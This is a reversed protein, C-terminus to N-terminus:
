EYLLTKNSFIYFIISTVINIIYIIIMYKINLLNNTLVSYFIIALTLNLLNKLLYILINKSPKMKRNLLYLFIFLITNQYTQYILLDLTLSFFLIIPLRQKKCDAFLNFCLYSFINNMTIVEKSISM